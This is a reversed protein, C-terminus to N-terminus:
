DVARVDMRAVLGDRMTYVHRVTRDDRITGDLHRIVQHVDVVVQGDDSQTMGTPEVHPDIVAFQGEWYTRVEAHGHARTGELMNPWDVDAHVFGLAAGIDRKNFAEYMRRVLEETQPSIRPQM